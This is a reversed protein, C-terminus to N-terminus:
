SVTWAPARVSYPFGAADFSTLPVLGTGDVNVVWLQSGTSAPGSGVFAVQHGDPSPVPSEVDVLNGAPLAEDWALPRTSNDTLTLRFARAAPGSPSDVSAGVILHRSDAQWAVSTLDGSRVTTVGGAGSLERVRLQRRSPDSTAVQYAIRAGDPSWALSSVAGAEAQMRYRSRLDVEYGRIEDGERGAVTYAIREGNPAVAAEGVGDDVPVVDGAANLRQLRGASLFVYGKDPGLFAAWSAEFPLQTVNGGIAVDLWPGARTHVLLRTGDLSWSFASADLNALQRPLRNGDVMWIGAPGSASSPAQDALFAVWHRLPRPLGTAFDRVSGARIPNGDLDVADRTVTVSYVTQPDLLTQPALLVRRNDGPDPRLSFRVSPSVSVAGALSRLDMARTFSLSLTTAPDVNQEGAGPSSGALEPASETRFTWGHNFSNVNGAADRYGAVLSVRYDTDPKFPQHRYILQRRSPWLLSGTTRPSVAFRAGVSAEDMDHDFGISVDQNSPVQQALRGPAIAVM